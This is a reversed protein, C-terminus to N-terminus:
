TVMKACLRLEAQGWFLKDWSEQAKGRMDPETQAPFPRM